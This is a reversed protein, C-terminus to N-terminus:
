VREGLTEELADVVGDLDEVDERDSRLAPRWWGQQRVVLADDTLSYGEITAWPRLRKVLPREMLLGAETVVFIRPNVAGVLVPWVYFLPFLIGAPELVAVFRGLFGIGGLVASVVMVAIAGRRWRRPWRAEWEAIRDAGTLCAAAYRNRSMTTVVLGVFMGVLACIGAVLLAGNSVPLDIAAVGFVGVFWLLPVAALLRTAGRRGLRIALGRMRSVLLGAVGTIVAFAGLFGLYLGAAGSVFQTIVFMAAPTLLAALYLGAVFAYVGDPSPRTPRDEANPLRTAM